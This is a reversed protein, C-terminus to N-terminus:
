IVVRKWIERRAIERITERAVGFRRGIEQQSLGDGLLRLIARVDETCLKQPHGGGSRARGKASADRVNDAQTGAVLHNPNVCVVNDCTHMVVLGEILEGNYLEYAVRHAQYKCGKLFFTGYGHNGKSRIWEWCDFQDGKIFSNEFRSLDRHTFFRQISVRTAKAM